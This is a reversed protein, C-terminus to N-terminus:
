LCIGVVSFLIALHCLMQYLFSLFFAETAAVSSTVRLYTIESAHGTPCILFM